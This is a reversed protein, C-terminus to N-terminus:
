YPNKGYRITFSQTIEQPLYIYPEGADDLWLYESYYDYDDDSIPLLFQIHKPINLPVKISALNDCKRFINQSSDEINTNAFDWGSLDLKTLSSCDGFMNWMDTVSSVDFESVGPDDLSSCGSFMGSMNQVKGTDLGNMDITSLRSCDSFMKSMDIVYSTDLRKLDIKQLSRCNTFMQSMNTVSSTDVGELNIERLSKCDCFMQSMNIVSSINLGELNIEQLSRCDCFMQSMNIVSSADLGKLDIERLNSCNKFMWSMDTVSSIDLGKLDIERLSICEGFMCNMKTVSSTDLGELDIERLSRCDYFMNYMNRVSSTNLRGLTMRKLSSCYAFMESMDSVHSTDVGGWTVTKLSSCGMFLESMNTVKSTDLNGFSVSELNTCDRFMESMDTLESTDAERIEVKTLNRWDSFCISYGNDKLKAKKDMIVVKKVSSFHFSSRWHQTYEKSEDIDGALIAAFNNNKETIYGGRPIYPNSPIYMIYLTGDTCLIWDYGAYNGIAEINDPYWGSDSDSGSEDGEVNTEGSSMHGSDTGYLVISLYTTKGEDIIIDGTYTKYGSQSATVVYEGVPLQGSAKGETDLRVVKKEGNSFSINVLLDKIPDLKSDSVSFQYTGMQYSCVPVFNGNELHFNERLPSNDKDFIPFEQELVPAIEALISDAGLGVEWYLWASLDTCTLNRDSKITTSAGLGIGLETEVVYLPDDLEESGLIKSIKNRVGGLWTFEVGLSAGLNANVEANCEWSKNMSKIVQLGSGSSYQMGVTNDLAYEVHLTGDVGVVLKLVVNVSFGAPLKIPITALDKSGEWEASADFEAKITNPLKVYIQNIKDKSFDFKYYLNSLTLSLAAKIETNEESSKYLTTELKKSFKSLSVSDEVSARLSMTKEDSSEEDSVTVGEAWVINEEDVAGIGEIDVTKFVSFIDKPIQGTISIEKEGTSLSAIEIPLGDKFEENAPLIYVQGEKLAGTEENLPLTVTFCGALDAGANVVAYDGLETSAEVVNDAYEIVDTHNPNINRGELNADMVSLIHNLDEKDAIANPVFADGLLTLMGLEVACKDESPYKLESSDQYDPTEKESFGLARVATVAAFERTVDDEPMFSTEEAEIPLVANQVAAEIKMVNADDYIDDYSYIIEGSNEDRLLNEESVSYGMRESILGIWESRSCTDNIIEPSSSAIPTKTDEPSPSEPAHSAAPNGSNEPAAPNGSNEPAAPATPAAPTAPNVLNGPTPLIMTIDTGSKVTISVWVKKKGSKGIVTTNGESVATVFGESTVKAIKKNDSSWKVPQAGKKPNTVKASLQQTQGVVLLYEKQSYLKLKKTVKYVKIKCKAAEKSKGKIKATIVVNGKTKAKIKGKATVVAIKKNSSSWKIKSASIGKAKLTLKDGVSMTAKKYNLVIKNRRAAEAVSNGSISNIVLMLVALCPLIKRMKKSIVM